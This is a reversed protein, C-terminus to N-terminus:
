RRAGSANSVCESSVIGIGGKNSRPHAGSGAENTSARREECVALGVQKEFAESSPGGPMMNSCECLDRGSEVQNGRISPRLPM